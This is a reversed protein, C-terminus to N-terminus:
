QDLIPNVHRVDTQGDTLITTEPNWDFDFKIPLYIVMMASNREFKTNNRENTQTKATQEDTLMTRKRVRARFRNTRDFDFNIPLYIVMM